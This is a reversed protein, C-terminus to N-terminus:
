NRKDGLGGLVPVIDACTLPFIHVESKLTYQVKIAYAINPTVTNSYTKQSFDLRMHLSFFVKFAVANKGNFSHCFYLVFSSM